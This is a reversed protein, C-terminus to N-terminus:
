CVGTEELPATLPGLCADWNLYWLRFPKLIYLRGLVMEHYAFYSEYFHM